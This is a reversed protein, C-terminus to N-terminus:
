RSLKMNTSGLDFLTTRTQTSGLSVVGSMMNHIKDRHYLVSESLAVM